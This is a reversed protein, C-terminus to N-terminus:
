VSHRRRDQLVRKSMVRNAAEEEITLKGDSISKLVQQKAIELNEASEIDDALRKRKKDPMDALDKFVMGFHKALLDSVWRRVQRTSIESREAAEELTMAGAIFDISYKKRIEWKIKSAARNFTNEAIPRSIKWSQMLKNIERKSLQLVDAADIRSIKNEAIKDLTALLLPLKHGWRAMRLKLDKETFGLSTAAQELTIENSQLANYVDLLNM